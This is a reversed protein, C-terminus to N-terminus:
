KSQRLFGMNRIQCVQRYFISQLMTNQLNRPKMFEPIINCVSYKFHVEFEAPSSSTSLVTESPDAGPWLGLNQLHPIWRPDKENIRSESIEWIRTEKHYVHKLLEGTSWETLRLFREGTSSTHCVPNFRFAYPKEAYVPHAILLRRNGSIGCLANLNVFLVELTTGACAYEPYYHALHLTPPRLGQPAM